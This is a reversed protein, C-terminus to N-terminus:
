CVYQTYRYYIKHNKLGYLIKGLFEYGFHTDTKVEEVVTNQHWLSSLFIFSSLFTIDLAHHNLFENTTNFGEMMCLIHNDNVKMNNIRQVQDDYGM